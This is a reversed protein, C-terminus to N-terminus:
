FKEINTYGLGSDVTMAFDFSSVWDVFDVFDLDLVFDVAEDITVFAFDPRAVRFCLAVSIILRFFFLDWM